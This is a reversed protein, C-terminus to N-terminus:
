FTRVLALGAELRDYEYLTLTSSNDVYILSPRLMWAGLLGPLELELQAVTQDDERVGGLSSNSLFAGDFESKILTVSARWVAGRQLITLGARAGSLDRGYSSGSQDATEVGLVPGAFLELRNDTGAPRWRLSVGGLVQSVDQVSIEEPYSVQGLRLSAAVSLMPMLQMEGALDAALLTQNGEGDLLTKRGSVDLSVQQQGSGYALGTSLQALSTSVFSADPYERHRLLAVSQWRMRPSMLLTHAARLGLGYFPSETAVSTENLPIGLFTQSDTGGNANTDLGAAGEISLRLVRQEVRQRHELAKLYGAIIEATEPPPDLTALIGFEHRADAYDAAKFYARALELRAGAFGRDTAVVSQLSFVARSPRGSDLCAVGFLYDFGADGAYEAELPLLALYAAEAQGSSVLSAIQAHDPHDAFAAREAPAGPSVVAKASVDSAAAPPTPEVPPAPVPMDQAGVAAALVLGPLLGSSLWATRAAIRRM